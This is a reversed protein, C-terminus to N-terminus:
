ELGLLGQSTKSLLGDTKLTLGKAISPGVTDPEEVHHWTILNNVRSIALFRRYDHHGKWSTAMNKRM